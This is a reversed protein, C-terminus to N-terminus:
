PREVRLLWTDQPAPNIATLAIHHLHWSWATRLREDDIAITEIAASFKDAPYAIVAAGSIREGAVPAPSLRIIGSTSLDVGCPTLLNLTLTGTVAELQYHGEIEVAQGRVLRVTRQWSKVGAEAPYAGAINLALTASEDDARYHADRAAFQQGPAQMHGNITPLNHFGSQMTWITYREDSFTKRTYTEVGADILVPHGDIYVIFQGIDNHNHSEANHGGKAAVYFGDTSGAQDRAIMVEIVPLWVDRPLAPQGEVAAMAQLSFLRPVQRLISYGAGARTQDPDTSPDFLHQRQALWVGFARMAADDIAEGYRYVLAADPQVVAPADAFNVYYDEDIHARYVFRGIEQVLSEGFVDIQGDTAKHLLDLCEFLSAGARGWYSPGEDCGGDAPYPDIFKDLSRMMKAIAQKCRDPDAEIALVCALWNSNIWPNWNNPRRELDVFGMWGFDDRTLLPELVRRQIEAEIRPRVLPSVKDLQPGLLYLVYAVLSATEAAFLDVTPEAVDPLDSGAKQVRVHAPVGWYSEECILWVGNVLQDLFRGQNDICEALALDVVKGRREFHVDQYRSRNGNRPFDLFREALLSPWEFGLAVEGRMLQHQRVAEPLADWAAREQATPFPHWDAKRVLQLQDAPYKQSLM